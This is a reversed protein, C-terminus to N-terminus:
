RVPKFYWHHDDVIWVAVAVVSKTTGTLAANLYGSDPIGHIKCITPVRAIAHHARPLPPPEGGGSENGSSNNHVVLVGIALLVVGVIVERLGIKFPHEKPQEDQPKTKEDSPQDM